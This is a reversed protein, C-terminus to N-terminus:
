EWLKSVKTYRFTVRNNELKAFFAIIPSFVLGLLSVILIALTTLILYWLKIFYEKM